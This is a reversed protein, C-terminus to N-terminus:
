STRPSDIEMAVGDLIDRESVVLGNAGLGDLVGLLIAAGPVIVGVRDIHLGPVHAREDPGVGAVATLVDVVAARSLTMGHIADPDYRGIAIAAVQTVTGAVGILPGETPFGGAAAAVLARAEERIATIEDTSPPDRTIHAEGQRSAGLALSVVHDPGHEDGAVVETSGGGIDIVRCPGTAGHMVLRAGAFALAAEREGSIVVLEVGLRRRVIDGVEGANSADRVASTGVVIVPPSGAAGIREAYDGLCVDLRGLADPVIRGDAAARRRLGTVRVVREGVAGGPGM